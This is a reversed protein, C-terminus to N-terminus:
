TFQWATTGVMVTLLEHKKTLHTENLTFGREEKQLQKNEIITTCNHSRNKNLAGTARIYNVALHVLLHLSTFYINILKYYTVTPPLCEM